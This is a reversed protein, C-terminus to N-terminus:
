RVRRFRRRSSSSAAPSSQKVAAGKQGCAAVSVATAAMLLTVPVTLPRRRVSM